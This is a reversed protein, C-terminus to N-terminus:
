VTCPNYSSGVVAKLTNTKFGSIVFRNELRTGRPYYDLIMSLSSFGAIFYGLQHRATTTVFFPDVDHSIVNVVAQVAVVLIM